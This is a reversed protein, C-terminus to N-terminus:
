LLVDWAKRPLLRCDIVHIRDCQVYTESCVTSLMQTATINPPLKSHQCFAMNFTYAAKAGLQPKMLVLWSNRDAGWGEWTCVAAAGKM